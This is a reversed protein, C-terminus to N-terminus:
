QLPGASLYRNYIEAADSLSTSDTIEPLPAPNLTRLNVNDSFLGLARGILELASTKSHMEIRPVGFRDFSISKIAAKVEQPLGELKEAVTRRDAPNCLVTLVDVPSTSAIQGLIGIVFKADIEKTM